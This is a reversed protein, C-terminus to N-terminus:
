SWENFKDGMKVVWDEVKQVSHTDGKFSEWNSHYIQYRSYPVYINQIELKLRKVSVKNSSWDGGRLREIMQRTKTEDGVYINKIYKKDSSEIRVYIKPNTTLNKGGYQSQNRVLKKKFRTQNQITTSKRNRFGVSCYFEFKKSLYSINTYNKKMTSKWGSNYQDGNIKGKISKIEEKLSQIQSEFRKIREEGDHIWRHNNRYIRYSERESDSLNNFVEDPLYDMFFVDGESRYKKEKTMKLIHHHSM